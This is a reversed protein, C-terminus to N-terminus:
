VTKTGDGMPQCLILAFLGFGALIVMMYAEPFGWFWPHTVLVIWLWIYTISLVVLAIFAVVLGFGVQLRYILQFMLPIAIMLVIIAVVVGWAILPIVTFGKSSSPRQAGVLKHSFLLKM